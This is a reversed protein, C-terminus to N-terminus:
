QQKQTEGVSKCTNRLYELRFSVSLTKQYIRGTVEELQDCRNVTQNFFIDEMQHLTMWITGTKKVSFIKGHKSYKKWKERLILGM